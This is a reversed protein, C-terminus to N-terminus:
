LLKNWLSGWLSCIVIEIDLHDTEIDTEEWWDLTDDLLKFNSRLLSVIADNDTPKINKSLLYKNFSDSFERKKIVVVRYWDWALSDIFKEFEDIDYWYM